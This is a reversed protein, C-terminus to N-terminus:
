VEIACPNWLKRGPRRRRLLVEMREDGDVPIVREERRRPAPGAERLGLLEALGRLRRDRQELDLSHISFHISYHTIRHLETESIEPFHRLTPLM